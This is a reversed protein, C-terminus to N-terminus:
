EIKSFVLTGLIQKDWNIVSVRLTEGSEGQGQSFKALYSGDDQRLYGGGGHFDIGEVRLALSEDMREPGDPTLTVEMKDRTLARM